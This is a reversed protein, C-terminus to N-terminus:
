TPTNPVGINEVHKYQKLFVLSMTSCNRLNHFLKVNAWRYCYRYHSDLWNQQCWGSHLSYKSLLGIRSARDSVASAKTWHLGGVVVLHAAEFCRRHRFGARDYPSAWMYRVVHINYKCITLISGLIAPINHAHIDMSSYQTSAWVCQWQDGHIDDTGSSRRACEKYWCHVPFQPIPPEGFCRLTIVCYFAGLLLM